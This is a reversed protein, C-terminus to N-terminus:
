ATAAGQAEDLMDRVLCPVSFHFGQFTSFGAAQLIELIRSSGVGEVVHDKGLATLARAMLTLTKQKEPRTDVDHVFSRDIKIIDFDYDTLMPMGNLGAGFDDLATRHGLGRLDGLLENSIAAAPMPYTETFELTMPSPFARVLEIFSARQNAEVLVSNHVNVSCHARHKAWLAEKMEFQWALVRMSDVWSLSSFFDEICDVGLPRSLIEGSIEDAASVFHYRHFVAEIPVGGVMITTAGGFLADMM